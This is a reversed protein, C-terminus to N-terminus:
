KVFTIAGRAQASKADNATQSEQSVRGEAWGERLSVTAHDREGHYVTLELPITEGGKPQWAIMHWPVITQVVYWDEFRRINLSHAFEKIVPENENNLISVVRGGKQQPALILRTTGRDPLDLTVAFADGTQDPRKSDTGANVFPTSDGKVQWKLHLGRDDWGLWSKNQGWNAEREWGDHRATLKEKVNTRFTPTAGDSQDPETVTKEFVMKGRTKMPKAEVAVDAVMGSQDAYWYERNITKTGSSDSRLIGLEVPVTEGGKPNWGVVNWPVITQVVYWDEFRRVNMKNTFTSVSKVPTEAVDTKYVLASETEDGDYRMRLITEEGKHPALIFRTRGSNPLDMQLDFADGSTFLRTADMGKNVFPTKDGRVEWKLHLGRHDWGLWAKGGAWRAMTGMGGNAAVTLIPKPKAKTELSETAAPPLKDPETGYEGEILTLSGGEMRKISNVGTLEAVASRGMGLLYFKGREWGKGSAEARVFHGAWCEDQLSYDELYMGVKAEPIGDWGEAFAFPRFITTVFLGDDRTLLYWMGDVSNVMYLDGLDGPGKAVGRIERLRFMSGPKLLKRKEAGLQKAGRRDSPYTWRITGDPEALATKALMTGDDGIQKVSFDIDIKKM